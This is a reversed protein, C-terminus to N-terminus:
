KKEKKYFNYAQIIMEKDNFEPEWDIKDKAKTIDLLYNEDAIMFQEPYMISIGFKDFINLAKKVLPAYTPLLFSKSNVNHILEKLLIKVSPPNNSGLNFNENPINHKIAKLIANACDYVSIMQYNNEGKGILPVPLNLDILKFLKKLIGLRGPGMILRPRFITINFGQERRYTECLDESMAKSKGYPGFPARQHSEKLLLETPKGYIMDTTFYILNKCGKLQMIELINKTGNYNTEFFFQKRKSRSPVDEHYQKAALNIVISNKDIDLQQMKKKFRIDCNIYDNSNDNKIDVIVANYGNKLLLKYTHQGTFGDGGIIYIKKM